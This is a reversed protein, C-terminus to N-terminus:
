KKKKMSGGKKMVPPVGAAAMGAKMAVGALQEPKMGTMQSAAGMPDGGVLKGMASFKNTMGDKIGKFLGFQAKPLPQRAAKIIADLNNNDPKMSKKKM